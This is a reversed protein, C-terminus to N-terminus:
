SQRDSKSPNGRPRRGNKAEYNTIMEEEIEEARKQGRTFQCATEHANEKLENPFRLSEPGPTM